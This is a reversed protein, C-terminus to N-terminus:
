VVRRSTRCTGTPRSGTATRALRSALTRSHSEDQSRVAHVQGTWEELEFEVQGGATGRCCLLQVRVCRGSRGPRPQVLLRVDAWSSQQKLEGSRVLLGLVGISEASLQWRRFVRGDIRGVVGWVAGVSPCSLAQDWAWVEDQLSAPHVFVVRELDWGWAAVAPPYVQRARDIVVLVGGDRCAERAAGLALTAAGSGLGDCLSDGLWEVLTGRRLGGKPLLRDLPEWGSSIREVGAARCTRELGHIQDQLQQALEASETM